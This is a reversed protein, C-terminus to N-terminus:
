RQEEASSDAVDVECEEQDEPDHFEQEETVIYEDMDETPSEPSYDQSRADPLSDEEPPPPPPLPDDDPPPPPPPNEEPLPPNLDMIDEVEMDEELRPVKSSQEGHLTLKRKRQPPEVKPLYQEVVQRLQYDQLPPMGFYSSEDIFNPPLPVNFGPFDIFKAPDYQVGFGMNQQNAEANEAANVETGYLAIGSSEVTAEELWGPPYDLVRMHYIFSPIHDPGLGLAERLKESIIGPKLDKEQEGQVHYRVQSVFQSSRQKRAMAIKKYDMPYPCEQLKHEESCNFCAKFRSVAPKDKKADVENMLDPDQLIEQFSTEYRPVRETENPESTSNDLAFLEGEPINNQLIRKSSLFSELDELTINECVVESVLEQLVPLFKRELNKDSFSLNVDLNSAGHFSGNQLQYRLKEDTIILTNKCSEFYM